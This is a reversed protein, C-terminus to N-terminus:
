EVILRSQLEERKADFDDLSLEGNEYAEHLRALGEAVATQSLGPLGADDEPEGIDEPGNIRRDRKAAAKEQKARERQIKGFTSRSKAM